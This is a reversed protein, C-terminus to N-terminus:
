LARTRRNITCTCKSFAWRIFFSLMSVKSKTWTISTSLTHEMAQALPDSSEHMDPHESLHPLHRTVVNCGHRCQESGCVIECFDVGNWRLDLFWIAARASLMVGFWGGGGICYCTFCLISFRACRRGWLCILQRRSLSLKTSKSLQWPYFRKSQQNRNSLFECFVFFLIWVKCITREPNQSSNREQFRGQLCIRLRNRM